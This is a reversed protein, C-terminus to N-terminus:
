EQLDTNFQIALDETVGNPLYTLQIELLISSESETLKSDELRVRPDSNVVREADELIAAKSIDDLPDMLYDYIKSGFNPLMVREGLKTSFHNMLDIKVLEFDAATYPPKRRDITTMGKFNIANAM